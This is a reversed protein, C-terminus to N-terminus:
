PSRGRGRAVAGSSRKRGPKRKGCRSCVWWWRLWTVVRKGERDYALHSTPGHENWNHMVCTKGSAVRWVFVAAVVFVGNIALDQWTM